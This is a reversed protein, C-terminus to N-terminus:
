NLRLAYILLRQSSPGVDTFTDINTLGSFPYCTILVLGGQNPDVSLKATQDVVESGYVQYHHVQGEASTLKLKDGVKVNALLSFHSDQHGAIVITSEDDVQNFPSVLGVSFALSSADAQNLVIIDEKIRLFSLQAVAATDAWPWPKLAQGTIRLHQWSHNILQHALWAKTPLWLAHVALALGAIFLAGTTCTIINKHWKM